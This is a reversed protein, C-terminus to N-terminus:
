GGGSSPKWREEGGGERGADGGSRGADVDGATEFVAECMEEDLGSVRGHFLDAEQRDRSIGGIM